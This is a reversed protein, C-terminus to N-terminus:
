LVSVVASLRVSVCSTNFTSSAQVIARVVRASEGMAERAQALITTTVPLSNHTPPYVFHTKM